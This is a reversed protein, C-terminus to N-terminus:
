PIVIKELWKPSFLRVGEDNIATPPPYMRAAIRRLLTDVGIGLATAIQPATLYQVREALTPRAM